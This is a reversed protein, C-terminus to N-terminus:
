QIAEKVAKAIARAMPLPLANVVLKRKAQMTFPSHEFVKPNSGQLECMEELSRHPQKGVWGEGRISTTRLENSHHRGDGSPVKNQKIKRNIGIADISGDHGGDATVKVKGSGGLRVTGTRSDASVAQVLPSDPLEFCATEIWRWLNPAEGRSHWWGFWFRRKRMQAEGLWCNDLLFSTVEYGVPKPDPAKPVNEMLFWEPRAQEICRSFEPILDGFKPELGKARVLNALASFAQCPPGGIVGDFKGVPPHFDRIDEGMLIEPGRVVTFGELRFGMGLVDLGPFLSLILQSM